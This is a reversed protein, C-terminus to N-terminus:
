AAPQVTATYGLAALQAVLRRAQRAPDRRRQYYDAGLDRYHQTPDAM